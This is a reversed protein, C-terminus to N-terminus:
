MLRKIKAASYLANAVTEVKDPKIPAGHFYSYGAKVLCVHAYSARINTAAICDICVSLRHQTHEAETLLGQFQKGCRWCRAAEPLSLLLRKLEKASASEYLCLKHM